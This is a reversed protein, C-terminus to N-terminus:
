REEGPFMVVTCFVFSGSSMTRQSFAMVTCPPSSQGSNERVPMCAPAMNRDDSHKSYVKTTSDRGEKRSNIHETIKALVLRDGVVAIYRGQRFFLSRNYLVSLLYSWFSTAATGHRSALSFVWSWGVLINSGPYHRLRVLNLMKLCKRQDNVQLVTM